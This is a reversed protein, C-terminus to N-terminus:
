MLATTKKSRQQEVGQNSPVVGLRRELPVAELLGQSGVLVPADVDRVDVDRPREEVDTAQEVPVASEDDVPLDPLRHGLGVDLRDDLPGAVTVGVAARPDDRVVARLEDGPVELLEDPQAPHGEHSSRGV